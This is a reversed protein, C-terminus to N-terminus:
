RCDRAVRLFVGPESRSRWPDPSCPCRRSAEDGAPRRTSCSYNGLSGGRCSDALSSCGSTRICRDAVALIRSTATLATRVIMSCRCHIPIADFSVPLLEGALHLLLPAIESVVVDGLDVAIALLEFSFELSAIAVGLILHALVDVVPKTALSPLVEPLPQVM